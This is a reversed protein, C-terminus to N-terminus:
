IKKKEFMIDLVTKNSEDFFDQDKYTKNLSKNQFDYISYLRKYAKSFFLFYKSDLNSKDPHMKLVIQKAAKLNPESLLGNPINFLRYLDELSYHELDLDLTNLTTNHFDVPKTLQSNKKIYQEKRNFQEKRDIQEKKDNNSEYIKIGAKPCSTPSCQGLKKNNM